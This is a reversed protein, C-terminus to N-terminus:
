KFTDPLKGTITQDQYRSPNGEGTLYLGRLRPSVTSAFDNSASPKAAEAVPLNATSNNQPREAEVDKQKTAVSDPLPSNLVQEDTSPVEHPTKPAMVVVAIVATAVGLVAWLPYAKILM